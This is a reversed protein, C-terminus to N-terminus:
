VGLASESKSWIIHARAEEDFQYGLNILRDLSLLITWTALLPRDLPTKLGELLLHM